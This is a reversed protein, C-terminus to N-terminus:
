GTPNLMYGQGVCLQTIDYTMFTYMRVHTGLPEQVIRFTHLNHGTM